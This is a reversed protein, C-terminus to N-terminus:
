VVAVDVGFYRHVLINRMAIVDAWPIEAYRARLSPSIHSAAEGIIELARVVAFTKETNSRFTAFDVGAVFAEAKDIADLIDNLYDAYARPM